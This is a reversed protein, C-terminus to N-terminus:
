FSFFVTARPAYMLPSLFDPDLNVIEQLFHALESFYHRGGLSPELRAGIEQLEEANPPSHFFGNLIERAQSFKFDSVLEATTIADFMKKVRSNNEFSSM